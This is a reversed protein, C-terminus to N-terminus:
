ILRAMCDRTFRLWWTAPPKARPATIFLVPRAMVNTLAIGNPCQGTNTINIPPPMIHQTNDVNIDFEAAVASMTGMIAATPLPSPVDNSSYPPIPVMSMPMANDAENAIDRGMLVGGLAMACEVPSMLDDCMSRIPIIIPTMESAIPYVTIM